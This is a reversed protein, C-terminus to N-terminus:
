HYQHNFFFGKVVEEIRTRRLEQGLELEHVVTQQYSYVIHLTGLLFLHFALVVLSLLLTFAISTADSRGGVAGAIGKIASFRQRRSFKIGGNIHIGDFAIFTLLWHRKLTLSSSHRFVISLERQHGNDDM